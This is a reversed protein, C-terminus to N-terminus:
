ILLVSRIYLQPTSRTRNSNLWKHWTIATRTNQRGASPLPRWVVCGGVAAHYRDCYCCLYIHHTCANSMGHSATYQSLISIYLYWHPLSGTLWDTLRWDTLWDTSWDTSGGTPRDTSRDNRGDTRGCDTMWNNRYVAVRVLLYTYTHTHSLKHM